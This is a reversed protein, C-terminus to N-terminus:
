RRPSYASRGNALGRIAEELEFADEPKGLESLRAGLLHLHAVPSARRAARRSLSEGGSAARIRSSERVIVRAARRWGADKLDAALGCAVQVLDPIYEKPVSSTLQGLEAVARTAGKRVERRNEAGRRPRILRPSSRPSHRWPVYPALSATAVIESCFEAIRTARELYVEAVERITKLEDQAMHRARLNSILIELTSSLQSAFKLPNEGALERYIVVAERLLSIVREQNPALVDSLGVETRALVPLVADRNGDLLRRCALELGELLHRATEADSQESLQPVLDFIAESQATLVIVDIVEFCQYFLEVAEETTWRMEELSFVEPSSNQCLLAAKMLAVGLRVESDGQDRVALFRYAEVTDRLAAVSSADKLPSLERMLEDLAAHLDDSPLDPDGQALRWCRAAAM